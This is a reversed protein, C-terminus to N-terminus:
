LSPVTKRLPMRHFIFIFKAWGLVVFLFIGISIFVRDNSDGSKLWCAIAGLMIAISWSAVAYSRSHWEGIQERVSSMVSLVIDVKNDKSIDLSSHYELM